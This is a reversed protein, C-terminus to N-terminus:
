LQLLITQPKWSDSIIGVGHFSPCYYKLEINTPFKGYIEKYESLVNRMDFYRTDSFEMTYKAKLDEESVEGNQIQYRVQLKLTNNRQEENLDYYLTIYHENQLEELLKDQPTDKNMLLNVNLLLFETGWMQAECAYLSHQDGEQEEPYYQDITEERIYVPDAVLDINISNKNSYLDKQNYKFKVFALKSEPTTMIARSPIYRLKGVDEFETSLSNNGTVSKLVLMAQRIGDDEKICSSLTSIILLCILWLSPKIGKRKETTM